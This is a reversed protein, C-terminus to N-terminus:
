AMQLVYLSYLSIKLYSWELWASPHYFKFLRPTKWFNRFLIECVSKVRTEKKQVRGIFSFICFTKEADAVTVAVVEELERGGEGRDGSVFLGPEKSRLDSM